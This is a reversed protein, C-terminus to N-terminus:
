TPSATLAEILAEYSTHKWLMILNTIADDSFEKRLWYLLEGAAIKEDANHHSVADGDHAPAFKVESFDSQNSTPEDDGSAENTYSTSTVDVERGEVDSSTGDIDELNDVGLPTAPGFLPSSSTNDNLRGTVRKAVAIPRDAALSDILGNEKFERVMAAIDDATIRKKAEILDVIRAKVPEPAFAGRYLARPTLETVTPSVAAWDAAAMFNRATSESFDLETQLWITLTGRSCYELLTKKVANLDNGVDVIYKGSRGLIRVRMKDLFARDKLPMNSYDISMAPRFDAATQVDNTEVEANSQDDSAAIDLSSSPLTAAEYASVDDNLMESIIKDSAIAIIASMSSM